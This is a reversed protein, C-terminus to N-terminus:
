HSLIQHLRVNASILSARFVAICCRLMHDMANSAHVFSIKFSTHQVLPGCQINCAWVPVLNSCLNVSKCRMQTLWCHIVYRLMIIEVAKFKVCLRQLKNIRTQYVTPITKMNCLVHVTTYAVWIGRLSHQYSSVFPWRATKNRASAIRPNILM